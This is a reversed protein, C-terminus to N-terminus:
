FQYSYGVTVLLEHFSRNLAGSKSNNLTYVLDARFRNRRGAALVHNTNLQLTSGDNAGAFTNISYNVGAASSLRNKLLNKSLGLTGGTSTTVGVSVKTNVKYASANIGVGSGNLFVSYSLTNNVTTMNFHQTNLKNNDNLTQDCFVFVFTHISSSRQWTYRPTAVISHTVQDLRTTDSLSKLGPKQTIGYNSYSLSIGYHPKPSINCNFSGVLRDTRALKKRQLNDHEKGISARVQFTNKKNNFSPILTVREVDTQMYYMGMTKYDPLIYGYKLALGFQRDRYQLTADGAYYISTSVRPTLIGKAFNVLPTEEASVLDARTDRTYASVGADVDLTLRKLFSLHTRLGIGANEGPQVYQEVPNNRVSNERDKAKFFSLDFFNAPTGYGLKIGYGYRDYAAYPFNNNYQQQQKTTDEQVAKLFRGWMASFRFKGPTLDIGAGLFQHGDLTYRSYSLSRYGLHVRIWKYTPSVGFQNFPQRFDRQQESFQFSFPLALGKVTVTANGSIIYSLPSRRPAIGSVAYGIGRIDLVGSYTIAKKNSFGDSFDQGSGTAPVLSLLFVKLIAAKRLNCRM